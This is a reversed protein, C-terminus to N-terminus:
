AAVEAFVHMSERFDKATARGKSRSNLWSVAYCLNSIAQPSFEHPRAILSTVARTFFSRASEDNMRDLKTLAWALNSISQSSMSEFRTVSEDAVASMFTGVEMFYDPALGGENRAHLKAVAWATMSLELMEFSGLRGEPALGGENKAHLKTIAWATMSLELMEFSDLRGRADNMIKLSVEGTTKSVASVVGSPSRNMKLHTKALAWAMNALGQTSFDQLHAKCAEVFNQVQKGQLELRAKAYLVESMCHPTLEELPRNAIQGMILIALQRAEQTM